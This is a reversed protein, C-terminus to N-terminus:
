SALDVGETLAEAVEVVFSFHSINTDVVGRSGSFDDRQISEAMGDAEVVGCLFCLVPQESNLGDCGHRWEELLVM